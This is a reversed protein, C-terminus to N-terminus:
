NNTKEEMHFVLKKFSENKEKLREFSGFDSIKGNELLIIIDVNQITSIRHAIIIITLEGKLNEISKQIKKEAITDLASTAEDFILISPERYLERAIFLRQKQGGSLQVGRDGVNTKFGKPLSLIFDLINAQAAVKKLKEKNSEFDDFMSINNAITDDFIVTDQSIYGIQDRWKAKNVNLSNVGDILLVGKEVPNLLTILDVITTKGSGSQGVIGITSKAPIEMDINNIFYNSNNKYRFFVKNFSIKDKLKNIITKGTSVINNKQNKYEQNILEMSGIMQFTAQFSSQVALISNLARYFLAISVLIPELRQDLVILQFYIISIIFLVALPERVSQTFSGAIGTKIQNTTLINVSNIVYKNLKKIQNTSVLYKFAHLIQVLWKNLNSNENASIRSLRQVFSNMKLFLTLLFVGAMIALIGFSTSIIFALFILVITNILHSGFLTLQKFSQIAISPQETILNIFEGTNKTTYYSFSMNSYKNFLNLKINKLLVGILYSNIGLSIFTLLGKLIFVFVILLLVSVTSQSLGLVNIVKYFFFNFGTTSSGTNNITDISELLPLLMLIGLGELISAITSFIFIIYMKRGLYLQFMKIYNCLDIFPKILKLM